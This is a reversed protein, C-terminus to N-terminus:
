TCSVVFSLLVAEYSKPDPPAGTLWQRASPGDFIVIPELWIRPTPRMVAIAASGNEGSVTYAPARPVPRHFEKSPPTCQCGSVSARGVALMWAIATSGDFGARIRM